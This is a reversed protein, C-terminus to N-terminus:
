CGFPFISCPYVLCMPNGLNLVFLFSSHKQEVDRRLASQTDFVFDRGKLIILLPEECHGGGGGWGACGLSHM